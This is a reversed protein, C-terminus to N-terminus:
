TTDHLMVRRNEDWGMSITGIKLAIDPPICIFFAGTLVRCLFLTLVM